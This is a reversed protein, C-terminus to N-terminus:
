KIIKFCLFINLMTINNLIEVERIEKWLVQILVMTETKKKEKFCIIKRLINNYVISVFAIKFYIYLTCSTIINLIAHKKSTM